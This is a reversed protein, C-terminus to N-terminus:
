ECPAGAVAAVRLEELVGVVDDEGVVQLALQGVDVAGGLAQEAVAPLLQQAHVGADQDRAVLPVLDPQHQVVAQGPTGRRQRVLDLPQGPVSPDHDELDAGQQQGLVASRDADLPDRTVRGLALADFLRQTMLGQVVREGPQGVPRQQLVPEGLLHLPGLTVLAHQAHHDEVQLFEFSDVVGEAM